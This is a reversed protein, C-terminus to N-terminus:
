EDFHNEELMKMYAVPSHGKVASLLNNGLSRVGENFATSEPNGPVHSPLDIHCTDWIVNYIWRRGRPQSIIYEIDQAMDKQHAEADAVQQPDSANYDSM